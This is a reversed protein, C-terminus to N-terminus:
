YGMAQWTVYFTHAIKDNKKSGAAINVGVQFGRHDPLLQGLGRLTAFIRPQHASVIGTTVLPECRSSFFNGFRVSATASDKAQKPIVIRGSAIKIGETRVIGGPLTYTGRPTNRYLWEANDALTQMKREGIMEIPTWNTAVFKDSTM